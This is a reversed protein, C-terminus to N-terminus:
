VPVEGLDQLKQKAWLQHNPPHANIPAHMSKLLKLREETNGLAEHADIVNIMLGSISKGPKWKLQYEAASVTDQYRKNNNLIHAYTMMIPNKFHHSIASVTKTSRKGHKDVVSVTTVREAIRLADAYGERKSRDFDGEEGDQVEMGVEQKGEQKTGKKHEHINALMAGGLPGENTPYQGAEYGYFQLSNTWRSALVHTYESQGWTVLALTCVVVATAVGRRQGGGGGGGGSDKNAAGALVGIAHQITCAVFPTAAMSPLYTYRDAGVSDTGHQFFPLTPMVLGLPLLMWAAREASALFWWLLPSAMPEGGGEEGKDEAPTERADAHKAKDAAKGECHIADFLGALVSTVLWIVLAAMGVTCVSYYNIHM